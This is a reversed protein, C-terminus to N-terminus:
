KKNCWGREIFIHNLWHNWHRTDFSCITTLGYIWTYSFVQLMPCDESSEAIILFLNGNNLFHGSIKRITIDQIHGLFCSCRYEMYRWQWIRWTVCQDPTQTMITDNSCFVNLSALLRSWPMLLQLPHPKGDRGDEQIILRAQWPKPAGLLCWAATIGSSWTFLDSSNKAESRRAWVGGCLRQHLQEIVFDSQTVTHTLIDTLHNM